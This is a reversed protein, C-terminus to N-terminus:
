APNPSLAARRAPRGLRRRYFSRLLVYCLWAAGAGVLGDVAYHWGLSISLAFILLGAAAMPMLWRRAFISFAIVMWATTAIHMSPMASIGAGPGVRAGSYVAWLYDAAQQTEYAGALGAFRDGYGMQAFFVPGAAPLLIHILPGVISWLVFYSLMVASKEPSPPARGVVLLTLIMMAFWGRHYFIAAPTSNLWSFLAWPEHGLFLLHDIDALLPDAWFPVLVNLLPKIWMFIVMNLGAVLVGIALGIATAREDVLFRWSHALPSEVGAALMACFGWVGGILAAALLWLPLVMLVPMVGSYNPLLLLAITGSLLTLVVSPALWDRDAM